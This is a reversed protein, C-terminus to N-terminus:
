AWGCDDYDEWKRRYARKDAIKVIAYACAVLLLSVAGAIAAGLGINYLASVKRLNKGRM